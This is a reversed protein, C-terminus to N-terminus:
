QAGHGMINDIIFQVVKETPMKKTSVVLDYISTDLININYFKKYRDLYSAERLEIDKLATALPVKDRKAIRQARIEKPASIWIKYSPINEKKTMWGILRSEFITKKAKQALAILRKDFNEDITADHEAALSQEVVNRNSEVALQRFLGGGNIHNYNLKEALLKATSTKGSGPLGSITILNPLNM